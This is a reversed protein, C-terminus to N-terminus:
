AVLSFSHFAGTCRQKFNDAILGLSTEGSNSPVLCVGEGSAGVCAGNFEFSGRACTLCDSSEPGVCTKCAASCPECQGGGLPSPYAGDPCLTGTNTVNPTERCKTPDLSDQTFGERCITCSGTQDVCASCGPNCITCEGTADRFFGPACVSCKGNPGPADSWGTSCLCSTNDSTCLGNTCGCKEAGGTIGLTSNTSPPSTSQECMVGQFGESCACTGDALCTGGSSCPTGKEACTTSQLNANLNINLSSPLQDIDPISEWITVAKGGVGSGVTGSIGQLVVMSRTGLVVSRAGQVGIVGSATANASKPLPSFKGQGAYLASPFTTLGEIPPTLDLPFTSGLTSSSSLRLPPLNPSFSSSSSALLLQPTSSV